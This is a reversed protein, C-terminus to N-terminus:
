CNEKWFPQQRPQRTFQTYSYYLFIIKGAKCKQGVRGSLCTGPTLGLMAGPISRKRLFRRSWELLPVQM